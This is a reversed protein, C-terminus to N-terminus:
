QGSARNQRATYASGPCTKARFTRDSLLDSTENFPDESENVPGSWRALYAMSMFANGGDDVTLDFGDSYYKTVLNKMNNESFDRNEGETGLIYSELSALSSFAWCSGTNGQDKVSTVKGEERLDFTAPLESGSVRLLLKEGPRSLGSLDVPSPIYGTGSVHGYDSSSIPDVPESQGPEQFDPNLPAVEIAPESLCTNNLPLEFNEASGAAFNPSGSLCSFLITLALLLSNIKKM